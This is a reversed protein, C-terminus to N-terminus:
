SLAKRLMAVRIAGGKTDQQGVETFGLKRHFEYSQPNPPAINVECTLCDARGGLTKQVHEYLKKGVSQGQASEVVAIRDIYLFDDYRKKFWLFNESLYDCDPMMGVIFGLIEHKDAYVDLTEAEKLYKTLWALDIQSVKPVFHNNIKLIQPLDQALARRIM